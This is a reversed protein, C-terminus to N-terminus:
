VLTARGCVRLVTVAGVVRGGHELLQLEAGDDIAAADVELELMVRAGDGPALLAPGEFLHARSMRDGVRAFPRYSGERPAIPASRGGAEPPLLLLMAEVYVSVTPKL